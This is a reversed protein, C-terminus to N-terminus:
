CDLAPTWLKQGDSMFQRADEARANMEKSM